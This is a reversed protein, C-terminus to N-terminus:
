LSRVWRWVVPNREHKFPLGHFQLQASLSGPLFNESSPRFDSLLWPWHIWLCTPCVLLCLSKLNQLLGCIQLSISFCSLFVPHFHYGHEWLCYINYEKSSVHRVSNKRSKSWTSQWITMMKWQYQGTENVTNSM